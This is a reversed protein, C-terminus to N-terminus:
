AAEPPGPTHIIPWLKEITEGSATTNGTLIKSLTVEHVGSMEALKRQTMNRSKLYDKVMTPFNFTNM